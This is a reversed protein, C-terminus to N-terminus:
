NPVSASGLRLNVNPLYRLLRRTRSNVNLRCSDGPDDKYAVILDNSSDGQLMADSETFGTLNLSAVYSNVVNVTRPVSRVSVRLSLPKLAGLRISLLSKLSPSPPQSTPMAGTEMM